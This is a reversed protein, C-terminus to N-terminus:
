PVTVTISVPAPNTVTGTGTPTVTVTYIRAAKPPTSSSSGGGCSILFGALLIAVAALLVTLVRKRRVTFPAGLLVACLMVAGSSKWPTAPAHNAASSTTTITLTSSGNGGATLTVSPANASVNSATGNTSDISTTFSVTGAYNTSSLTLAVTGSSGATITATPEGATLTYSPAAPPAATVALTAYASSAGFNSDGSYSATLTDSGVSFGNATSVMVNDGIDTPTNASVPFTGITTSGVKFTVTGTVTGTPTSNVSANLTTTGGLTVSNPLVTLTMSTSPQAAVTLTTSGDSAAFDSNGSYSATISNPGVSFGDATSVTVNSITAIGGSIPAAGITTGGVKFTMTGAITGVTTSSVSATLQATGGLKVSPPTATLTTTTPAHSVDVKRVLNNYTDAVYLNGAGDVAIGYPTNLSASTAAGGDGSHGAVYNGVVTTITGGPTVKRIVNNYADAIYLNGAGDVAVSFPANLTASTAPCGDGVSDTEGTCGSGGGAVTTITGPTGPTVKRIVNNYRDAIYLNGAGDVAVGYPYQLQASTAPGGDGSYGIKGNGAVTTITGSPTVKRVRFNYTDAVYLNGSGDVTVGYPNAFQASTAPCGDGVSDTEGTCGSGGGAVTTITGPAGLTVKRIVNNMTDAIYLNGVGDVAVGSPDGLQASTAPGDDGSNGFGLSNNGAMTTITGGPMVKRIVQNLTDGIDINGIADVVVGYPNYLCASTALGGDGCYRDGMSWVGAVTTITGPGFVVMPGTGTGYLPVTILTDGGLDALVVAGLRTGVAIPLFQVQVTCTTNTNGSSCTGGAVIMFDLNPAGQTVASIGGLTIGSPVTFSLSQTSGTSAGVAVSGFNVPSQITTVQSWLQSGVGLLLICAFTRLLTSLSVEFVYSFHGSRIGHLM